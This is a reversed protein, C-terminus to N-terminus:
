IKVNNSYFDDYGVDDNTRASGACAMTVSKAIGFGMLGQNSGHLVNPVGFDM